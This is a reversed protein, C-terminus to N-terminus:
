QAPPTPPPTDDGGDSGGHGGQDIIKRAADHKNYFVPDKEEYDLMLKDLAKLELRMDKLLATTSKRASTKGSKGAGLKVGGTEFATILDNLQTTHESTIGGTTLMEPTLGDVTKKIDKCKVLLDVEDLRTLDSKNLDSYKMLEANKKEKAAFFVKGLLILIFKIMAGKALQKAETLVKTGKQLIGENEEIQEIIGETNQVSKGVAPNDKTKDANDKQVQVVNKGSKIEAKEEDSM